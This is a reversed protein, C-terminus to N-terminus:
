KVTSRIVAGSTVLGTVSGIMTLIKQLENLPASSVYLIDKNQMPFQRANFYSRADRMSMKYVVPVVTAGPQAVRTPDLQRALAVPEFRFIFVGDPDAQYDLMGGAKAIAEEMSVEIQDFPIVANRGTAGFATYTLPQRIATIVDGPLVFINEAPNNIIAQMPVTVSRGARLLTISTEYVPARIGGASSLVDLIRDGKVTLPIRAGATVEGTVTATNSINRSVTVLAQPEIAKGTLQAVIQAEIDPPTLGLVRVRGAYPVTISGDQAVTQDPITISRSGTSARDVIPSSFLGGAAAEWVTVTIGDGVGVRQYPAPRSDGFRGKFSDGRRQRVIDAIREDVNVILYRSLEDQSVQAVVERALPGQTPLNSCGALGLSLGAAALITLKRYM